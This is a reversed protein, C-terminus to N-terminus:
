NRAFIVSAPITTLYRSRLLSKTTQDSLFDRILKAWLINDIATNPSYLGYGDLEGKYNNLVAPLTVCRECKDDTNWVALKRLLGAEIASIAVSGPLVAIDISNSLLNSLVPGAGNFPIAFATNSSKTIEGVVNNTLDALVPSGTGWNLKGPTTKMLDTVQSLSTINSKSNTVVVFVNTAVGSIPVLNNTPATENYKRVDSIVTFLMSNHKDAYEIGIQGQAGPKYEPVLNVNQKISYEQLLRFLSDVGGAPAYPIVVKIPRNTIESHTFTSTISMVIALLFKKM